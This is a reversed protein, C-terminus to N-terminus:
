AEGSELFALLHGLCATLMLTGAALLSVVQLPLLVEQWQASPAVFLALTVLPLVYALWHTVALPGAFGHVRDPLWVALAPLAALLPLWALWAAVRDGLFAADAGAGAILGIPAGDLEALAHLGLYAFVILVVGVTTAVRAGLSHPVVHRWCLGVPTACAALTIIAVVSLGGAFLAHLAPQGDFAQSLLASRLLVLSFVVLLGAIGAGLGTRLTRNMPFAFTVALLALFAAAVFNPSAPDMLAAWPPVLSKARLAPLLAAEFLLLVALIQLPTLLRPQTGARRVEMTDATDDRRAVKPITTDTEAALAERAAATHDPTQLTPGVDGAPGSRRKPQLRSSRVRPTPVESKVQIRPRSM